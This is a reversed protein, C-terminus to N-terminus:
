PNNVKANPSKPGKPLTPKQQKIEEVNIVSLDDEPDVEWNVVDHLAQSRAFAGAGSKCTAEVEVSTSVWAPGGIRVVWKKLKMRIGGDFIASLHARTACVDSKM